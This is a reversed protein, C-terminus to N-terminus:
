PTLEALRANLQEPSIEGMHTAALSGDPRIFLTVPIGLTGYHRPIEQKADLAVLPLRLKERALYQAIKEPAEGQNAFVFRVEPNAGAARALVPMERRCPPCWTAWLNIVTPRGDADALAVPPGELSELVLPPLPTPPPAAILQHATNWVIFGAALAAAGWGILRPRRLALVTVLAATLLGWPWSFGGQWVAFVRWPESAFSSAHELVHGARAGVLGLGVALYGWRGLRPDVRRGVIEAAGLVVALGFLAALREASFLFPGLALDTM